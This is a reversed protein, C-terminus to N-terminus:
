ILADQEIAKLHVRKNNTLNLLDTPLTEVVKWVPIKQKITGANV